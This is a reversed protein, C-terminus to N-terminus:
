RCWGDLVTIVVNDLYERWLVWRWYIHLPDSGTSPHSGAVKLLHIASTLMGIHLAPQAGPSAPRSLQQPRTTSSRDVTRILQFNTWVLIRQCLYYIRQHLSGGNGFVDVDCGVQRGHLVAERDSCSGPQKAGERNSWSSKESVQDRVQHWWWWWSWEANQTGHYITHASVLYLEFCILLRSFQSTWSRVM